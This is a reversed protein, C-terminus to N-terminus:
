RAPGGKQRAAASEAYTVAKEAALSKIEWCLLAIIPCAMHRGMVLALDEM